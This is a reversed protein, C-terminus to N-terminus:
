NVIKGQIARTVNASIQLPAYEEALVYMQMMLDFTLALPYRVTTVLLDLIAHVVIWLFVFEKVAACQVTM